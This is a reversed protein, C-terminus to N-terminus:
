VRGALFSINERIALTIEGQGTYVYAITDVWAEPSPLPFDISDGKRIHGSLMLAALVPLYHLAYEIHIPVAVHNPNIQRRIHHATGRRDQISIQQLSLRRLRSSRRVIIPDRSYDQKSQPMPIGDRLERVDVEKQIWFPKREIERPLVRARIIAHDSIGFSEHVDQEKIMGLSPRRLNVANVFADATVINGFYVHGWTQLRDHTYEFPVRHISTSSAPAESHRRIDFISFDSSEKSQIILCTKSEGIKENALLIGPVMQSSPSNPSIMSSSAKDLSRTCKAPTVMTSHRRPIQHAQILSNHRSWADFKWGIPKQCQSAYARAAVLSPSPLQALPSISGVGQSPVSRERERNRASQAHLEPYQLKKNRPRFIEPM